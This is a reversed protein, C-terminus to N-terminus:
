SKNKEGIYRWFETTNMKNEAIDKIERRLVDQYSKVDNLTNITQESLDQLKVVSISMDYMKTQITAVEKNLTQVNNVTSVIVNDQNVRGEICTFLVGGLLVIAWVVRLVLNVYKLQDKKV